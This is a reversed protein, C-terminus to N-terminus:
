GEPTGTAKTTRRPTWSMTLEIEEELEAAIEDALDTPDPPERPGSVRIRLSDMGELTVEAVELDKDEVWEDAILEADERDREDHATRRTHEALPIAVLIVAVIATAVGLRIRRPLRGDASRRPSVGLLLMVLAAALIIGALNTLYLLLADDALDSRGVELTMGITALPPVLAVAIAVGPAVSIAERRVLVYAGAAGAVVAVALDLLDPTTRDLLQQSTSTLTRSEPLLWMVGAAVAVGGVSAGVLILLSSLQRRPTGLVLATAFGLLPTTLPSILMAGIVVPASNQALGFSAILVAMAMLAAFRSLFPGLDPGEYYLQGFVDDRQQATLQRRKPYWWPGRLRGRQKPESGGSEM